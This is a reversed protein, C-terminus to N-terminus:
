PLLVNRAILGTYEILGQESPHVQDERFWDPQGDSAQYWNILTINEYKTAMQDFLANVGNQWRQTPVRTNILYVQRDGIETMLDDFQAETALGNSGLGLLVNKKLLGEKKLQKIEKLSNYLQRGIVADVVVSPFVEQLNSTAGLMVSDGFATLELQQGQRVQEETLQYRTMLTAINEPIEGSTETTDTTDIAENTQNTQSKTEEAIKQNEEIKQQFAEQEATLTNTPAIILGILSILVVVLIGWQKVAQATFGRMKVTEKLKRLIGKITWERGPKEVFRYSWESLLFIIVLEIVTHLWRHDAINKVKAEYFIMVPFQYLYLSYSRKGIYTFLPNTLWRNWNAGPHATVAVMVCALLSILYFGGYYIFSYRADLFFFGLALLVLSIGGSLNLVKKAEKPIQSRLQATPWVFALLSGLWLSFLRTDTGYYVRTPDSGPQFLLVMMLASILTGGFIIKIITSKNKVFKLLLLCIIPWILYNQGEVALSWLHTFPSENGFRDFYSYGQRIQWWNNVYFLSSFVIGKLNNLLNRQFLTIYAASVILLTVLAPYLRRIRRLYFQKFQIKENIQWEQRLGDTILYGSIVFFVPVGLYGGRMNEPMLHYFIVGIVALSRLGDLGSIYRRKHQQKNEM